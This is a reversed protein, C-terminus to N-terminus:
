NRRARPETRLRYTVLEGTALTLALLGPAVAPPQCIPAEPELRWCEEGRDLRWARLAGEGTVTLALRGAVAVWRGPAEAEGPGDAAPAEAVPGDAAPGDWRGTYAGTYLDVTAAPYVLSEEWVAPAAEEPVEWVRAGTCPDYARGGVLVLLEGYVPPRPPGPDRAQWLPEGTEAALAWLVGDQTAALVRGDGAAPPGALPAGLDRCWVRVGTKPELAAVQGPGCGVCLLNGAVGAATVEGGLDTRWVLTGRQADLAAVWGEPSSLYVLGDFVAPAALRTGEAPATLGPFQWLARGRQRDLAYYRGDGLGAYVRDYRIVPPSPCCGGPEAPAFRWGPQPPGLPHLPSHGSRGPTRGVMPWEDGTGPAEPIVLQQGPLIFEPHALQNARLIEPVTTGFRRALDLATEGPRVLHLIGGPPPVPVAGPRPIVLAQGPVIGNPDTLRNAAVIAHVTTQYRQAIHYLTEGRQVFYFVM